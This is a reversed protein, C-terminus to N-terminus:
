VGGSGGKWHNFHRKVQATENGEQRKSGKDDKRVVKNHARRENEM